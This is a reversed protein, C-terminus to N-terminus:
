PRPHGELPRAFSLEHGDPDRVHFYREGWPADAPETLPPHGAAVVAEHVADPDEVHLVIRGWFGAPPGEGVTLNLYDDGVRLTSFPQDRGGFVVEDIGVVEYFDLSAAMDTVLLTVADIKVAAGERM